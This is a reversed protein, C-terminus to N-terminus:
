EGIRETLSQRRYIRPHMGPNIAMRGHSIRQGEAQAKRQGEQMRELTKLDSGHATITEGTHIAREVEIFETIQRSSLTDVAALIKERAAAQNEERKKRSLERKHELYELPTRFQWTDAEKLTTFLNEDLHRAEGDEKWVCVLVYARQERVYREVVYCAENFDWRLQLLPDIEKLRDRAWAPGHLLGSEYSLCRDMVLLRVRPWVSLAAEPIESAINICNQTELDYIM